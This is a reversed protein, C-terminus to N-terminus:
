DLYYREEGGELPYWTQTQPDLSHLPMWVYNGQPDPTFTFLISATAIDTLSLDDPLGILTLTANTEPKGPNDVTVVIDYLGTTFDYIQGETEFEGFRFIEIGTLGSDFNWGYWFEIPKFRQELEQSWVYLDLDTETDWELMAILPVDIFLDMIKFDGTDADVLVAFWTEYPYDYWIEQELTLVQSDNKYHFTLLPYALGSDSETPNPGAYFVTVIYRGRSLKIDDEGGAISFDRFIIWEEGQNGHTIDPSDGFDAASGIFQFDESWIELDLDVNGEWSLVVALDGSQHRYLIKEGSHLSGNKAFVEAISKPQELNQLLVHVQDVPVAFNLNQGEGWGFTNVGIVEGYLNLLPGGSNGKSIPATIQILNYNYWDVQRELTSIIGDSVTYKFGLPNGMAVITEGIRTNVLNEALPLVPLNEANVRIIALDMDRSSALVEIVEYIQGDIEAVASVTDELVHYNTVILGDERIVFGTGSSAFDPYYADQAVLYAISPLAIEALDAISYETKSQQDATQDSSLLSNILLGVIVVLVVAAAIFIIKTSNNKSQVPSDTHAKAISSIRYESEPFLGPQESAKIWSGMDENKVFDDQLIRGQRTYNVLDEWSYPGYEIEERKMFWNM